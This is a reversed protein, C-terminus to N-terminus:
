RLGARRRTARVRCATSGCQSVRLSSVTTSCLATTTSSSTNCLIPSWGKRCRTSRGSCRRSVTRRRSLRGRAGICRGEKAQFCAGDKSWRHTKYAPFLSSRHTSLSPYLAPHLCPYVSTAASLFAVLSVIFSLLAILFVCFFTSFSFSFSTCLPAVLSFSLSLEMPCQSHALFLSVYLLSAPSCFFLPFFAVTVTAVAAASGSCRASGIMSQMATKCSAM